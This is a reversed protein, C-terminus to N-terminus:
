QFKISADKPALEVAKLFAEEAGAHNDQIGQAVGLNDWYSADKPALEVAKSYAEEAGAYNDQKFRAVGLNNWYGAVKSALKVAKSYAKEAGAYNDQKFRAAGLNDWYGADKPALRVAKLFAEEAGAYNDQMGRAVGLNNWCGTVKSALNVAKLFAEEAGAYNDQKFRAAGLNHWLQVVTERNSSKFSTFSITKEIYKQATPYDKKRILTVALGLNAEIENPNDDIKDRFYKEAKELGDKAEIKEVVDPILKDTQYGTENLLDITSFVSDYDKHRLYQQIRKESETHFAQWYGKFKETGRFQLAERCHTGTLDECIAMSTLETKSYWIALFEVIAGIIQRDRVSTRWQHWLRFLQDTLAYLTNKGKKETVAKVLGDHELRVIATGINRAPLFTKRVIEMQTLNYESEALALVIPQVQNSLDRMRNLYYTSLDQELLASFTDVADHIGEEGTVTMYLFLLIRPNGGTLHYLVKLKYDDKYFFSAPKKDLVAWRRLLDVAQDFSLLDLRRIRFFDYLPAKSERIGEFFTPSSAVLMMFNNHQLIHRFQKIENNKPLCKTFIEDANELLVLLRKGSSAVYDKLHAVASDIIDTQSNNASRMGDIVASIKASGEKDGVLLEESLKMMIRIFLTHLSFIGQEEENMLVPMWRSGLDNDQEVMHYIMTIIHSKGMGRTGIVMWHQLTKKDAQERISSILDEILQERAVFTSKLDEFPMKRPTYPYLLQM